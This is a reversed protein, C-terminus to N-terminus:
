KKKSTKKTHENLYVENEKDLGSANEGLQDNAFESAVETSTKPSYNQNKQNKQNNNMYNMREESMNIVKILM